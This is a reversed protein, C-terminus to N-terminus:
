VTVTVVFPHVLVDWGIATVTFGIGTAVMVAPPGKFKQAPPVTVSEATAPLEQLQLLPALVWCIVNLLLASKVTVTVLADPHEAVDPVVEM